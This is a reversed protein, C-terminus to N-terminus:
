GESDRVRVKPRLDESEFTVSPAGAPVRSGTVTLDTTGQGQVHVLRRCGSTGRANRIIGPGAEDLVIAAADRAQLGQRGIFNEIDFGLHTLRLASGWEARGGGRGGCPLHRDRAPEPTRYPADDRTDSAKGALM